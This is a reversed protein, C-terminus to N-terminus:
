RAHILDFRSATKPITLNWDGALSGLDAIDCGDNRLGKRVM